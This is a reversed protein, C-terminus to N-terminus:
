RRGGGQKKSYFSGDGNEHGYTQATVSEDSAPKFAPLGVNRKGKGSRCPEDPNKELNIELIGHKCSASVNPTKPLDCGTRDLTIVLSDSTEVVEVEKKKHLLDDNLWWSFVIQRGTALDTASECFVAIPRGRRKVSMPIIIERLRHLVAYHSLGSGASLEDLTAYRQEYLIGLITRSEEDLDSYLDYRQRALPSASEPISDSILGCEKFRRALIEQIEEDSSYRLILEELDAANGASKIGKDTCASKVEDPYKRYLTNLIEQLTGSLVAIIPVIRSGQQPTM